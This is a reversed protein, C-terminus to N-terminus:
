SLADEVDSKLVRGNKGTGEVESLSVDEEDALQAAAETAYSGESVSPLPRVDAEEYGTANEYAAAIAESDTYVRDVRREPEHFYRANRWQISGQSDAWQRLADPVEPGDLYVLTRV